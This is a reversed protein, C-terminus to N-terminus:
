HTSQAQSQCSAALIPCLKRVAHRKTVGPARGRRGHARRGSRGARRAAPPRRPTRARACPMRGLRASRRCVAPARSRRGRHRPRSRRWWARRRSASRRGSSPRRRVRSKIHTNSIYFTTNETMVLLRHTNGTRNPLTANLEAWQSCICVAESRRTARSRPWSRVPDAVLMDVTCRAFPCCRSCGRRRWWFVRTSM